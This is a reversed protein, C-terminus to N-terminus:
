VPRKEGGMRRRFGERHRCTAKIWNPTRGSAYPADARKSVIGELNCARKWIEVGDGELHQSVKIPGEIKSFLEELVQKGSWWRVGACTLPMSIFSTSFMISLRRTGGKVKLEKEL